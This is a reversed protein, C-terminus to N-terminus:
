EGFNQKNAGAKTCLAPDGMSPFAGSRERGSRMPLIASQLPDTLAWAPRKQGTIIADPSAKVMAVAREAFQNDCVDFGPDVWPWYPGM